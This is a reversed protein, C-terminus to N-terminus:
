GPEELERRLWARGKTWDRQVTRLPLGLIDATEQESLGGFFRCEVVKTQRESLQALRELAQDLVLVLHAQDEIPLSVDDVSLRVQDGGRKLAGHQRALDVLLQRMVRVALAYFHARDRVEIRDQQVLKLYAEHVLATTDLTGGPSRRQRRAIAHLEDYLLSWVSDLAQRDGDRMAILLATVEGPEPPSASV